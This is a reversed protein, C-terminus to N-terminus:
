RTSAPLMRRGASRAGERRGAAHRELIARIAEDVAIGREEVDKYAEERRSWLRTHQRREQELLRNLKESIEVIDSLAQRFEQSRVYHYLEETKRASNEGSIGARHVQIVWRRIVHALAVAREPSVVVVGDRWALEKEKKPFTRSVLVVYPTAYADRAQKAQEVYNESWQLTDKSEYVILGAEVLEDTIKYRVVHMIDTGARGRGVRDVKDTKNFADQLARLLDEETFEGRDGSEYRELRREIARNQERLQEITKDKARYRKRYDEFLERRIEGSLRKRLRQAAELEVKERLKREFAAAARRLHDVATQNVLPQGCFPCVADTPM